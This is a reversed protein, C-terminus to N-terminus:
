TPSRLAPEDITLRREDADLTATVGLPLTTLHEGHGLPLKYLVPVGLPELRLELVDELSKTRSAEPRDERWDCKHMEGVVVGVVHDLKGAMTLHWLIADLYWPPLDVDEFFLICGDADFEWPTGLSYQLLTLCGGVIPATVTGGVIPRTYPDDPDKSVEGCGDGSLVRLLEDRSWPKREPSGMSSMGPGYFTCLGTERRIATHLATIDSYGVFPKPNAAITAYDLLPLLQMAGYGGWLVQIADVEPDAFMANLDRARVEPPGATYDDVHWIGEGLKVRYGREEWWEVGRLVDSKNHYPNSPAPVGITGGAPLPAGFRTARAVVTTSV